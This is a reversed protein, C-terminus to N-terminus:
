RRRRRCNLRTTPLAICALCKEASAGSAMIRTAAGANPRRRVVVGDSGTVLVTTARMVDVASGTFAVLLAILRMPRTRPGSVRRTFACPTFREVAAVHIPFSPPPEAAIKMVSGVAVSAVTPATRCRKGAVTFMAFKPATVRSTTTLM